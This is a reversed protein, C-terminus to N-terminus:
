SVAANMTFGKVAVTPAWFDFLLVQPDRPQQRLEDGNGESRVSQPAALGVWWEEPHSTWSALKSQARGM